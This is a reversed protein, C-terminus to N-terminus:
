GHGETQKGNATTGSRRRPPPRETQCCGRARPRSPRAARPGPLRLRWHHRSPAGASTSAGRPRRAAAASQQGGMRHASRVGRWGSPLPRRRHVGCRRCRALHRCARLGQCHAVGRQPSCAPATLAARRGGAAAPRLERLPRRAGVAVACQGHVPASCSACVVLPGALPRRCVQCSEKPFSVHSRPVM